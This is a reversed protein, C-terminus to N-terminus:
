FCFLFLFQPPNEHLFLFLAQSPLIMKSYSINELTMKSLSEFFMVHYCGDAYVVKRTHQLGFLFLKSLSCFDDLNFLYEPSAVFIVPWRSLLVQHTRAHRGDAFFVGLAIQLLPHSLWFFYIGVM